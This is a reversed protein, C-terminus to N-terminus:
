YELIPIGAEQLKKALRDWDDGWSDDLAKALWERGDARNYLEKLQANSLGEVFAVGAEEDQMAFTDQTWYQKIKDLVQGSTLKAYPSANKATGKDIIEVLSGPGANAGFQTLAEKAMTNFAADDFEMGLSAALQVLDMKTKNLTEAYQMERGYADQQAQNQLQGRQAEYSTMTDLNSRDSAIQGLNSGRGALADRLMQSRSNGAIQNQLALRTNADWAGGEDYFSRMKDIEGRPDFAAPGTPQQVVPPPTAAPYQETTQQPSNPLPKGFNPTPQQDAKFMTMGPQQMGLQMPQVQARAQQAPLMTGTAQAAPSSFQQSPISLYSAVGPSMPQATTKFQAGQVAGGNITGNAAGGGASAPKPSAMPPQNGVGEFPQQQRQAPLLGGAASMGGSSPMGAEKTRNNDIGRRNPQLDM